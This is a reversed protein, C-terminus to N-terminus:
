PFRFYKMIRSLDCYVHACSLIACLLVEHDANSRPLDPCNRGSDRVPLDAQRAHFLGSAVGVRSGTSRLATLCVRVLCVHALHLHCDSLWIVLMPPSCHNYRIITEVMPWLPTPATTQTTMTAATPGTRRTSRACAWHGSCTRKWSRAPSLVFSLLMLVVAQSPDCCKLLRSCRCLYAVHSCYPGSTRLGVAAGSVCSFKIIMRSSSMEEVSYWVKICRQAHSKNFMEPAVTM